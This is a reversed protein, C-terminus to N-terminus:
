NQAQSLTNSNQGAGSVSYELEGIALDTNAMEQFLMVKWDGTTTTPIRKWTRYRVAGNLSVNDTDRVMDDRFYQLLIKPEEGSPVVFNMWLYAVEGQKLNNGPIESVCENRSEGKMAVEKCFKYEMPLVGQGKGDFYYDVVKKAEASTPKDQAMTFWPMAILSVALTYIFKKM